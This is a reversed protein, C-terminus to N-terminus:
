KNFKVNIIIVCIKIFTFLKEENINFKNFIYFSKILNTIEELINM